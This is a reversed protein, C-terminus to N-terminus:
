SVELVVASPLHILVKGARRNARKKKGSDNREQLSKVLSNNGSISM